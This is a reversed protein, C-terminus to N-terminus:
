RGRRLLRRCIAVADCRYTCLAVQLDLDDPGVDDGEIGADLVAWYAGVAAVYWRRGAKRAARFAKARDMSSEDLHPLAERAYEVRLYPWTALSRM